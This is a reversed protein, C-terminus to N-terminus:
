LFDIPEGNFTNGEDIVNDELFRGTNGEGFSPADPAEIASALPAGAVLGAAVALTTLVSKKLM